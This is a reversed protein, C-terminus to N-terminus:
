ELFFKKIKWFLLKRKVRKYNDVLQSISKVSNLIVLELYHPQGKEFKYLMVLEYLEGTREVFDKFDEEHKKIVQEDLYDPILFWTIYGTEVKIKEIISRYFDYNYELFLNKENIVNLYEYCNELSLVTTNVLSYSNLVNLKKDLAYNLDKVGKSRYFKFYFWNIKLYNVIKNKLDIIKKRM